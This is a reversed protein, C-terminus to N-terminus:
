GIQLLIWGTKLPFAGQFGTSNIEVFIIFVDILM